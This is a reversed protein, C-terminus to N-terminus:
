GAWATIKRPMTRASPVLAAAPFQGPLPAMPRERGPGVLCDRRGRRRSSTGNSSGRGRITVARQGQAVGSAGPASRASYSGVLTSSIQVAPAVPHAPRASTAPTMSASSGGSREAIVREAASHSRARARRVVRGLASVPRRAGDPDPISRATRRTSSRMLNVRSRSVRSNSLLAHDLEPGPPPPAASAGRGGKGQRVVRPMTRALRTQAVARFCGDRHQAMWTTAM